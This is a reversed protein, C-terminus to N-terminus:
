DIFIGMEEFEMAYKSLLFAKTNQSRSHLFPSLGFFNLKKGDFQSIDPTAFCGLIRLHTDTVSREIIWTELPHGFKEKWIKDFNKRTSEFDDSTNAISKRNKAM